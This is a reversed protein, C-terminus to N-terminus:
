YRHQYHKELAHVTDLLGRVSGRLREIEEAAIWDLHQTVPIPEGATEVKARMRLLFVLDDQGADGSEKPEPKDNM